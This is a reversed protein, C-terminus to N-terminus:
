MIIIILILFYGTIFNIIEYTFHEFQSVPSFLQHVDSATRDVVDKVGLQIGYM